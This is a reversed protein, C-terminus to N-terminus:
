FKLIFISIRESVIFDFLSYYQVLINIIVEGPSLFDITVKVLKYDIQKRRRGLWREPRIKLRGLQKTRQKYSSHNCTYDKLSALLYILRLLMHIEYFLVFNLLINSLLYFRISCCILGYIFLQYYLMISCLFLGSQTTYCATILVQYAQM